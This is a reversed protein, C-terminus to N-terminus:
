PASRTQTRPSATEVSPTAVFNVSPAAVVFKDRNLTIGYERCRTLMQHIRRLHTPFDEDFLLIDDVVKVCNTIGQLAMDGRLCFADGTASFGM